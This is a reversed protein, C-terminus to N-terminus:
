VFSYAQGLLQLYPRRMCGDKRLLLARPDLPGSERAGCHWLQAVLENLEIFAGGGFDPRLHPFM